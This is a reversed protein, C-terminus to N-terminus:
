PAGDAEDGALPTKELARRYDSPTCKMLARFRRNFNSLTAFGAEGSIETVTLSTEALLRASYDVRLESLFLSVNRGTKKKFYRSFAEPSMAAVKAIGVLTLPERFHTMLFNYVRALREEARKDLSPEYTPSALLRANKAGALEGLISLLEMLANLGGLRALRRMRVAVSKATGGQFRIGRTARTFLRGIATLEPHNWFDRGMFDPHFQVVLSKSRMAPDLDENRWFHPLNSGLLVLDGTKYSEICNGVFRRGSGGTILTIEIEPHFHWITEQRTVNWERVTFSRGSAIPIKEFHARMYQFFPAIVITIM